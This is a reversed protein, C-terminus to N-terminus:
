QKVIRDYMEIVRKVMQEESFITRVREVANSAYDKLREPSQALELITNAFGDADLADFFLGSTGSQIVSEVGGVRTSIVPAQAAMAELITHPVGESHSSCVYLDLAWLAPRVDELFGTFHVCDALQLRKAQQKLAHLEPGDGVLVLRAHPLSSKAKAFAELLIDYGKIPAMRGVSGIVFADEPLNMALKYSAKNQSIQYRGYDIGNPVLEIIRISSSLQKFYSELQPSIVQVADASRLFHNNIRHSIQGIWRNDYDTYTLNPVRAAWAASTKKAILWAMSNSRIGFTHVVAANYESVLTRLRDSAGLVDFRSSMPLFRTAIELAAAQKELEGHNAISVIVPTYPSGELRKALSLIHREVGGFNGDIRCLLVVGSM